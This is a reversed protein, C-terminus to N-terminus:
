YVGEEILLLTNASITTSIVDVVGNPWKVTVSDVETADGLGFSAELEDDSAFSMGSQLYRVLTKDGVVVEIRAGVGYSNSTTGSLKVKLFNGSPGDNRLLKLGESNAILWDMDGDEDYDVWITGRSNGDSSAGAAETVDIFELEGDISSVNQYLINAQEEGSIGGAVISLDEDGDNDFDVFSAGWETVGRLLIGVEDSVVSFTGDCNNQHLFSHEPNTSAQSGNNTVLIDLCTDGNPDGVALGMGHTATDTIGSALTEDFLMGATNRYFVDDGFDVSLWLDQTFNEDFDVFAGMYTLRNQSSPDEPDALGGIGLAPAVNTFTNDGNNQYLADEPSDGYRAAIFLDLDNDGDYDGWTVGMSGSAGAVGASDSIEMFTGDGQNHYLQASAENPNQNAVFLDLYGDDDFDAWALGAGTVGTLTLNASATVDTFTGDCNSQFLVVSNGGGRPTVAIDVCGDNDYDGAAVGVAGVVLELGAEVTTDTFMPTLEVGVHVVVTAFGPVFQSDLAEATITHSGQSLTTTSFSGGTGIIGDVSSRWIIATNLNGDEADEATATFTLSEGVAVRSGENPSSVTVVPATNGTSTQATVVLTPHTATDAGDGSFFSISDEFQNDNDDLNCSVRAQATAGSTLADVSAASLSSSSVGVVPESLIAANSVTPTAEFDSPSLLPNGGFGTSHVDIVCPGLATFPSEGRIAGSTLNLVASTAVSGEPLDIEFSTIFKLQEDLNTDGIRLAGIGQLFPIALGGQETNEGSEIIFGDHAAVSTFTFESVESDILGYVTINTSDSAVLGDIDTVTATIVHQGPSLTTVSLSEGIGIIGDIDSSWEIAFSINGGEFDEALGSFVIEDGAYVRTDDLPGLLDMTPPQDGIAIELTIETTQGDSDTVTATITHVGSSLNTLFLREGVGLMGDLSSTWVIDGSIELDDSDFATAALLVREGPQFVRGDINGFVEVTPLIGLEGSFIRSAYNFADPGIKSGMLRGPIDDATPHIGGYIRSISTEDSADRYTAWQLQLDVSPGVEFVLFDEQPADFTGMGGPFFEDGTVLTMVEAAARSFTSHGSVYGAFPPTVFSPRQYPWWNECLIWDVGAVDVEPDDIFDPGRWAVAAIKGVNEGNEGSLHAHIGGEAATEETIVEIKGPLLGIGNPDYSLGSPDTSQGLDCMYRLASIPRIYDYWGKVGWAAIASDHMAGGLTLYLKVDYELADLVDGEGAFRNEHQEHGTVYNAVSFWHGPPTESDPGDAWFEALVRYYDAAPVMQPEYPLGTTPNMDRGTGDNTGLTNNGRSAPSIDIMVGDTPDLLGSWEIVQQFGEMYEQTGFAPPAGPDHYVHYEFGDRSYVTLDDETLAFPSVKGWEPSLFDLAGGPILNGSQDVFFDLSLPQWHDGDVIDPNGPFTPLLPPNVPEYYNNGFDGAENSMDNLGFEIITAAIRNGLAAASDGETSTFTIDYGLEAMKDDYAPLRVAGGPSNVFRHTLLRYAAYSIAEERAAEVDAVDLVKEHHLVQGVSEDYAAWADWMAASTHYLNRAHVTPRAFDLRISALLEESWQKAISHETHVPTESYTIVLEPSFETEEGSYFNAVDQTNNGNDDVACYARIQTYGDANIAGIGASSLSAESWDGEITAASLTGAAMATAAANFDASELATNDSFGGTNVDVLCPGLAQYPSEGIGLGFKLRIKADTIEVGTPIVSTDFSVFTKVQRNDTLDGIALALAGTRNAVVFGGVDNLAPREVVVGDHSAVSPIVMEEAQAFCSFALTGSLASYKLLSRVQKNSPTANSSKNFLFGSEPSGRRRFKFM